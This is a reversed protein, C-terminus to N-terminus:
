QTTLCKQLIVALENSGRFVLKIHWYCQDKITKETREIGQHGLRDHAFELVLNKMVDPVLVQRMERGHDQITRHLVGDTIHLRERQQLYKRLDPSFSKQEKFTPHIDDQLLIKLKGLVADEEQSKLLSTDTVSPIIPVLANLNCSLVNDGTPVPQDVPLCPISTSVGLTECVEEESMQPCRSLGDAAGNQKGPKYKVTFDFRALEAARRQEVAKLKPSKM